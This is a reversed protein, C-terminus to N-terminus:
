QLLGHIYSIAKQKKAPSLKLWLKLMDEQEETLSAYSDDNFFQGLSIGFAKCISDLTSITPDNGRQYLNTLTSQPIGAEKSLRYMSWGREKRLKTIRKLINM